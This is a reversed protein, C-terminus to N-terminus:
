ATARTLCAPSWIPARGEQQATAIAIEAMTVRSELRINAAIAENREDQARRLLAVLEVPSTSEALRDYAASAVWGAVATMTASLVTTAQEDIVRQATQLTKCATQYTEAAMCALAHHETASEELRAALDRATKAHAVVLRAHELDRIASPLSPPAQTM